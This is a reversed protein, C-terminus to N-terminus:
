SKIGPAQAHPNENANAPEDGDKKIGAARLLKQIGGNPNSDEDGMGMISRKTNEEAKEMMGDFAFEQFVSYLDTITEDTAGAGKLMNGMMQPDSAMMPNKQIENMLNKLTDTAKKERPTAIGEKEQKKQNLWRNLVVFGLPVATLFKEMATQLAAMKIEAMQEELKNRRSQDQLSAILQMRQMDQSVYYQNAAQLQSSNREIMEIARFLVSNTVQQQDINARLFTAHQNQPGGFGGGGFAGGMGMGMGMGGGGMGGMGGGFGSGGGWASPGASGGYHPQGWHPVQPPLTVPVTYPEWAKVVGDESSFHCRVEFRQMGGDGMGRTRHEIRQEILKCITESTDDAYCPHELVVTGSDLHVIEIAFWPITIRKGDPTRASKGQSWGRVFLMLDPLHIPASANPQAHSHLWSSQPQNSPSPIGPSAYPQPQNMGGGMGSNMGGMGGGFPGPAGGFPPRNGNNHQDMM